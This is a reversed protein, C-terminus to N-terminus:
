GLVKKLDRLLKEAEDIQLLKFAARLREDALAEVCADQDAQRKRIELSQASATATATLVLATTAILKLTKM